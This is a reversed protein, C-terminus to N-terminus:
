TGTRELDLDMFFGAQSPPPVRPLGRGRQGQYFYLFPALSSVRHTLHEISLCSLRLESRCCGQLALCPPVRMWTGRATTHFSLSLSPIETRQWDLQCAGSDTISRTKLFFIFRHILSTVQHQGRVKVYMNMYTCMCRCVYTYVRM